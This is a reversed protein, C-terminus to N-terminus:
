VLKNGYLRSEIEEPYINKGNKTIIVNKSRGTIYLFGNEDLYGLDGTHFWGDRIVAETAEPDRYYGRMINEGRAIIEGVGESN